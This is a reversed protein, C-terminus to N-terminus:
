IGTDLAQRDTKQTPKKAKKDDARTPTAETESNNAEESVRLSPSIQQVQSTKVPAPVSPIPKKVPTDEELSLDEILGFVAESLTPSSHKTPLVSKKAPSIDEESCRREEPSPIQDTIFRSGDRSQKISADESLLSPKDLPLIDEDCVNISTKPTKVMDQSSSVMTPSVAAPHSLTTQPVDAKGEVSGIQEMIETKLITEERATSENVGEEYTDVEQKRYGAETLSTREEVGKEAPCEKRSEVEATPKLHTKPPVPIFKLINGLISSICWPATALFFVRCM